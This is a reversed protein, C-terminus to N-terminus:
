AQHSPTNVFSMAYSRYLGDPLTQVLNNLEDISKSNLEAILPALLEDKKQQLSEIQAQVGQAQYLRAAHSLEPTSPLPHTEHQSIKSWAEAATHAPVRIVAGSLDGRRSFWFLNETDSYDTTLTVFWVKELADWEERSLQVRPPQTVTTM